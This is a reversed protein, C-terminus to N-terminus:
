IVLTNCEIGKLSKSFNLEMMSTTLQIFDNKSSSLKRFPAEPMVSFYYKTNEIIIKANQITTSNISPISSKLLDTAYNLTLVTGLSFGILIIPESFQEIYDSYSLL